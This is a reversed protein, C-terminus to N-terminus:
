FWTTIKYFSCFHVFTLFTLMMNKSNMSPMVSVQHMITLPYTWWFTLTWEDDAWRNISISLRTFNRVLCKQLKVACCCLLSQLSPSKKRHLLVPPFFVNFPEMHSTQHLGLSWFGLSGWSIIYWTFIFTNTVDKLGFDESYPDRPRQLSFKGRLHVFRNRAHQQHQNSVHSKQM